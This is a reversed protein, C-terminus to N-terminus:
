LVGRLDDLLDVVDATLVPAPLASIQDLVTRAAALKEEPSAVPEPRAVDVVGLTTADWLGAGTSIKLADDDSLAVARLGAPLPDAVRTGISRTEGSSEDIIVYTTTM